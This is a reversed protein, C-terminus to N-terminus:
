EAKFEGCWDSAEVQPWAAHVECSFFNPAPARRRCLGYSCFETGDPKKIVKTPEFFRCAECSGTLTTM